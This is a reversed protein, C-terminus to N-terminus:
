TGQSAQSARDVVLCLNADHGRLHPITPAAARLAGTLKGAVM